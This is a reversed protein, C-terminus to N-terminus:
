AAATVLGLCRVSEIVEQQDTETLDNYFPLRLLRDCVSETVPCQGPFGGFKRGMESLHLPLYHFVSLIGRGKLHAMMEDRAGQSRLLLYFMHYSQECHKPVIPLRAGCDDAWDSLAVAYSCWLRKRTEQISEWAELQAYLYAALLDSPLFSSGVDVWTYKDVQGRYFRSRNTGKERLIEAREVYSPDNILLAGGEGCTINKTEHFSLTALCGFTGLCQGRYRAFLGHASDEVVPVGHRRGIALITDMDCAIGAYHVVIIAKTRPTILSEIQREDINLTDPRIDAFVPIAGRLVFANVTSVFTFSPVIVEDGPQIDLLLASMELADTCSTTLLVRKVGLERELFAHCKKTYAGDGSAHGNIVAQAVYLLEKGSLCPKSFPIRIPCNTM